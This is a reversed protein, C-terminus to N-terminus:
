SGVSIGNNHCWAHNREEGAAGGETRNGSLVGPSQNKRSTCGTINVRTDVLSLTM